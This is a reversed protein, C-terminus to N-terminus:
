YVNDQFKKTQCLQPVTFGEEDGGYQFYGEPAEFMLGIDNLVDKTAIGFSNRGLV